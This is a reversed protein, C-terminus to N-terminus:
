TKNHRKIKLSNTRNSGLELRRLQFVGSPPPPPPIASSSFRETRWATALSDDFGMPPQSLHFIGHGIVLCDRHDSKDVDTGIM